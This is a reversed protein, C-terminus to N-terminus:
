NIENEEDDEAPRMQFGTCTYTVTVKSSHSLMPFLYVDSTAELAAEVQYIYKLSSQYKKPMENVAVGDEELCSTNKEFYM